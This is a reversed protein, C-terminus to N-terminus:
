STPAYLEYDLGQIFKKAQLYQNASYQGISAKLKAKMDTTIRKVRDRQDNNLHGGAASRQDYMADLADRHQKYQDDRLVTPWGIQGTLPDLESVSLRDPIRATSYRELDERTPRPGKEAARAARNTDRMNFYTEAAYQRNEIYL